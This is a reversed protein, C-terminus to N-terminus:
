ELDDSGVRISGRRHSGILTGYCHHAEITGNGLYVAIKGGGHIKRGQQVTEGQFQYRREPDFLWLLPAIPVLFFKSLM